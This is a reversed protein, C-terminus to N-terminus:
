CIDKERSTLKLSYFQMNSEIKSVLFMFWKINKDRKMGLVGNQIAVSSLLKIRRVQDVDM